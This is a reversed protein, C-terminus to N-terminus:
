FHFCHMESNQFLKPCESYSELVLFAGYGCASVETQSPLCAHLFLCKFFFFFFGFLTSLVRFLFSSSTLGSSCSITRCCYCSFKCCDGAPMFQFLETELHYLDAPNWCLQDQHLPYIQTTSVSTGETSPTPADSGGPM